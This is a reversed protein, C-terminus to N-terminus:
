QGLYVREVSRISSPAPCVSGPTKFETTREYLDRSAGYSLGFFSLDVGVVGKLKMITQNCPGPVFPLGSEFYSVVSTNNLIYPVVVNHFIGISFRPFELGVGVGVIGASASGTDGIRTVDFGALTGATELSRNNYNFGQTGNYTLKLHAQCTSNEAVEPYVKLNCKLAFTVPIVGNVLITRSIELPISIEADQALTLIAYKVELEGNLNNHQHNYSNIQSNSVDIDSDASFDSIFGKVEIGAVSGRRATMEVNLKRGGGGAEPTLKLSLAFGALTGSFEVGNDLRTETFTSMRGGVKFRANKITNETWRMKKSYVIKASKYYDNFKADTTTAIIKGGSEAISTIKKLEYGEFLVVQGPKLDKVASASSNFYLKGGEEKEFAKMIELSIETANAQKVVNTVSGTDAYELKDGGITITKADPAIVAAKKNCQMQILSIILLMAISKLKINKQNNEM